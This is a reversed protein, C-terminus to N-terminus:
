STTISNQALRRVVAARHEGHHVIERQRRAEGVAHQHHLPPPDHRVRRGILRKRRLPDSRHKPNLDHRDIDTAGSHRDGAPRDLAHNVLTRQQRM